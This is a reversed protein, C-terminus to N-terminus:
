PRRALEILFHDGANRLVPWSGTTEDLYVAARTARGFREWIGVLYPPPTFLGIAAYKVVEFRGDMFRGLERPTYYRTWVTRGNLPVPVPGHKWRVIARRPAGRVLFYAVEWPCIRGIASVIMRGGPSLLRHCQEALETLDPACNIAGLDSYIGDFPDEDLRHLEHMGLTQVRVRGAVGSGEVRARTMAAMEPSWDIALINYRLGAFHAADLGTGCGLDLLRSGPSFGREVTRWLHRRMWQIALNNGSPGDYESAVSGFAARVDALQQAVTPASV